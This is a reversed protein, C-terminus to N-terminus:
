KMQRRLAALARFQLVKVAGISKGILQATEEISLEQSFRLALVHQKEATLTQFARRVEQNDQKHETEQETRGAAPIHEHDELDEERRRYKGRLHDQVLHAATGLLWGKLNTLPGKKQNLAELLRLFVESSIDEGIHHDQLRYCVYRYVHPYYQDHLEALAQGDLQQIRELLTMSEMRNM